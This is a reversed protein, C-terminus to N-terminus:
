GTRKWMYVVLYPPMNNHAQGGGIKNTMYALENGEAQNNADSNYMEVKQGIASATQGKGYIFNFQSQGSAGDATDNAAFPLQHQHNPMENTTLVHTAEGGVDGINYSDGAGLLFRDKLREWTGGFLTSPETTNLSLYIAGIPYVLNLFSETFTNFTNLQNNIDEMSNKLYDELEIIDSELPSFDINDIYYKLIKGQKASLVKDGEDSVLSNVIHNYTLYDEQNNIHENSNIEFVPVSNFKEEVTTNKYVIDSANNSGYIINNIKIMGM